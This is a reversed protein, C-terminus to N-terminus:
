VVFIKCRTLLHTTFLIIQNEEPINKVKNNPKDEHSSEPFISFRKGPDFFDFMRVSQIPSSTKLHVRTVKKFNVTKSFNGFTSSSTRRM